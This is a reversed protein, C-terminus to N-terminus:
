NRCGRHSLLSQHSLGVGPGPDGLQARHGDGDAVLVPRELEVDVLEPELLADVDREALAVAPDLDGGGPAAVVIAITGGRGPSDAPMSVRIPKVDSSM